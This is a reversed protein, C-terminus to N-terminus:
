VMTVKQNKVKSAAESKTIVGNGDIDLGRNQWYATLKRKAQTLSPNDKWLTYDADKGVAKPWLIAMYVDEISNLKGKFPKLYKEVYDLQQVATMDSLVKLAAEKTDKGTLDKATSGMFQILGTAGSGAKNKETPDFTGGTEFAMAKLLHEPDTELNAAIKNVKADFEPSRSMDTDEQFSPINQQQTNPTEEAAAGTAAALLGALGAAAKSKAGVKSSGKGLVKLANGAIGSGTPSSLAGLGVGALLGLPGAGAGGVAGAILTPTTLVGGSTRLLGRTTKDWTNALEGAAAPNLIPELEKHNSYRRMLSAWDDATTAGSGVVADKIASDIDQYVAQLAKREVPAKTTGLSTGSFGTSGFSTKWKNLGSVTGDWGNEPDFLKAKAEEIVGKIDAKEANSNKILKQVASAESTLDLAINAGAEDAFTLADGIKKGDLNLVAKNRLALREPDRWFGFGETDGVEKIAKSLRTGVEGAELDTLLGKDKQSKIFNRATAGISSREFSEGAGKFVKGLKNAIGATAVNVGAGTLSDELPNDSTSNGLTAYAAGEAGLGLVNAALKGVKGLKSLTPLQAAINKAQSPIAIATALTGGLEAVDEATKNGEGESIWNYFQDVKQSPYGGQLNTETGTLADIGSNGAKYLLDAPATFIGLAAKGLGKLSGISIDRGSVSPEEAQLQPQSFTNFQEDSIFDPASSQTGMSMYNSLEEDPIFDPTSMIDKEM